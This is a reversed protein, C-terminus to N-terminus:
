PILRRWLDGFEEVVLTRDDSTLAIRLIQEGVNGIIVPAGAPLKATYIPGGSDYQAMGFVPHTRWHVAGGVIAALRGNQVQVDRAIGLGGFDYATDVVGTSLARRYVRSDGGLTYYITDGTAGRAVSSAYTTGPIVALSASGRSPDLTMIELGSVVDDTTTSHYVGQGLWLLHDDDLWRLFAVAQHSRGAGAAFYPIPLIRVTAESEGPPRLALDTYYPDNGFWPFRQRVMAVAGDRRRAPWRAVTSTDRRRPDTDCVEWRRSGGAPPLDGVCGKPQGRSTKDRDFAYIIRGSAPDWSPTGDYGASYTLRTIEGPILASDLAASAPEPLDSHLCGSLGAGLLLPLLHAALFPHPALM